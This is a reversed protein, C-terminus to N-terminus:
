RQCKPGPEPILPDPSEDVRRIMSTYNPEAKDGMKAWDCLALYMGQALLPDIAEKTRDMFSKMLVETRERLSRAPFDPSAWEPTNEAVKRGM